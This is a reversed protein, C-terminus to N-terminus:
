TTKPFLIELDERRFCALIWILVAEVPALLSLRVSRFAASMGAVWWASALFSPHVERSTCAPVHTTVSWLLLFGLRLFVYAHVLFLGWGLARWRRPGTLPTALWLALFLVTPVYGYSLSDCLWVWGSCGPHTSIVATDGGAQAAHRNPEFDLDLGLLVSWAMDSSARFLWAYPRAVLPWCLRAVCFAVLVM